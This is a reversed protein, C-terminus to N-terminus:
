NAIKNKWELNAIEYEFKKHEVENKELYKDLKQNTEKLEKHMDMQLKIMSTMNVDKIQHINEKIDHVENELNDIKGILPELNDVKSELKDVKSQLNDMKNELNNVIAKLNEWLEEITM